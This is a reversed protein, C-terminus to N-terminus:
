TWTVTGTVRWTQGVPKTGLSTNQRCLNDGAGTAANVITEELWAYEAEETVFDSQFVLDHDGSQQPYTANMAKYTKSAGILDTQTDAPATADNGVGIRANANNWANKASGVAAILYFIAIWAEHLICNHPAGKVVEYPKIGKEEIEKSDKAVFKEVTWQMIAKGNEKVSM